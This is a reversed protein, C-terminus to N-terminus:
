RDVGIQAAEVQETDTVDAHAYAGGIEAALAEGKEDQLDVVTVRVGLGALLLALAVVALLSRVLWRRIRTM